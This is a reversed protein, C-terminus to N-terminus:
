TSWILEVKKRHKSNQIILILLLLLLATASIQSFRNYFRAFTISFLLNRAPFYHKDFYARSPIVKLLQNVVGEMDILVARAQMALYLTQNLLYLSRGM